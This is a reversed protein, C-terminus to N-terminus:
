PLADRSGPLRRGIEGCDPVLMMSRNPGQLAAWSCIEVFPFREVDTGHETRMVPGVVELNTEPGTRQLHGTRRWPRGTAPKRGLSPWQEDPPRKERQGHAAGRRKPQSMM